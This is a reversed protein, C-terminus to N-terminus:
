KKLYNLFVERLIAPANKIWGYLIGTFFIAAGVACMFFGVVSIARNGIEFGLFGLGVGSAVAFFGILAIRLSRTTGHLFGSIRPQEM